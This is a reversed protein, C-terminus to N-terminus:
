TMLRMLSAPASQAPLCYWIVEGMPVIVAFDKLAIDQSVCVLM